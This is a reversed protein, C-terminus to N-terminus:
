IINFHKLAKYIGDNNVDDTIYKAVSKVKPTANGMAIGLGVNKIMEYDNDGDGFAIINQSDIKLYDALRKVGLGKSAHKPLIDHGYAQWRILYLEPNHKIIKLAEEQNCFAWAQYVNNKLHYDQVVPPIVLDLSTFSDIVMDNIFNVGQDHSGEFGYAIGLSQLQAVLRNLVVSDIAEEFIVDNHHKIYQGNILVFYDILPIIDKISELMFGARGTALALIYNKPINKLAKVTLPSLCRNKNDYLTGDVDFFILKKESM